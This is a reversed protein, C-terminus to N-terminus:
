NESKDQLPSNQVHWAHPLGSKQHECTEMDKLCCINSDKIVIAANSQKIFIGYYEEHKAHKDKM